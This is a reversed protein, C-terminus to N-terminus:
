ITCTYTESPSSQLKRCLYRRMLQRSACILRLFVDRAAKLGDCILLSEKKEQLDTSFHSPNAVVSSNMVEPEVFLLDQLPFLGKRSAPLLSNGTFLRVAAEVRKCSRAVRSGLLKGSRAPLSTKPPRGAGAM